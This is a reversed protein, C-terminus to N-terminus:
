LDSHTVFHGPLLCIIFKINVFLEISDFLMDRFASVYGGLVASENIKGHQM